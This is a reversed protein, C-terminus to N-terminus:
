FIFLYFFVYAIIIFFFLPYCIRIFRKKFFSKLEIERNLLLAGSILLFLPVGFRGLQNLNVINFHFIEINKKLIFCHLFIVGSIALFKLTDFYKIRTKVAM